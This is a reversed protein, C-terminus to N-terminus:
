RNHLFLISFLLFGCIPAAMTIIFKVKNENKFMSLLFKYIFIGVFCVLSNLIIDDVDSIGIGFVYQVIEVLLSISFIWLINVYIRKYRKLLTLYIGLPIFLIINGVVNFIAFIFYLLLGQLARSHNKLICM